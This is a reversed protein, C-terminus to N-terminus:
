PERVLRFGVDQGRYNAAGRYRASCRSNGAPFNYSGGRLVHHTGYAEIKPDNKKHKEYAGADYFDQTWEWVNGSMDYLGLANPSKTAAAHAKYDSNGANWGARAPNNGGSFSELKGGSRCAFEWEAETPLRFTFRRGGMSTLADIFDGTNDFSVGAAPFEAPLQVKPPSGMIQQWQRQTVEREAMWFGKVCVKHVPKEDQGCDGTWDGCGMDFCGGEVWVFNMGTVPDTWTKEGRPPEKPIPAMVVSPTDQTRAAKAAPPPPPPPPPPAVPAPVPTAVAVTPAPAPAPAATPAPGAFYFEGTLSSSEWPTQQKRTADQVGIRVNKFVKEVNMGPQSLNRLLYETYVGNRGSGDAAVSGPATAYAILSGTPADMQALGKQVSRFSRAFPNDRCADLIVINLKNGASEMKGLVRGADVAEYEVDTESGLKADVPILFNRGKIQMGHGAFYFLGVDAGKLKEGFDNVAQVMTKMDANLKYTVDFGLKKLLGAMDTADNTPNKLPSTAYNSNGILLAVRKEALAPRVAALCLALAAACALLTRM